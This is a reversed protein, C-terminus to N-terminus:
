QEIVRVIWDVATDWDGGSGSFPNVESYDWVMPLAQRGFTGQPNERSTDWRGLSSLKDAQRDVVLALCTQVAAVYEPSERKSLQEGVMRALRSLTTLSLQHRPNCLGGLTEMGYLVINFFGRLHNLRGEPILPLEGSHADKRRQIEDAAEDVAQIDAKTPSRYFRGTHGPRSLVVCLLS